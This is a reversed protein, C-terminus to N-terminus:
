KKLTYYVWNPNVVYNNGKTCPIFLYFISSPMLQFIKHTFLFYPSYIANLSLILNFCWFVPFYADKSEPYSYVYAFQPLPQMILPCTSNCANSEESSVLVTNWSVLPIAKSWYYM